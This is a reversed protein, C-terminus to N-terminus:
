TDESDTRSANKKRVNITKRSAILSISLVLYHLYKSPMNM